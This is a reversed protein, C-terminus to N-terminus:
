LRLVLRSNFHPPNNDFEFGVEHTGFYTRLLGLKTIVKGCGHNTTTTPYFKVGPCADVADGGALAL